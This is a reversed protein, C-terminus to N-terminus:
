SQANIGPNLIYIGHKMLICIYGIIYDEIDKALFNSQSQSQPLRLGVLILM